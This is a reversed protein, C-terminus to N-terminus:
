ELLRAIEQEFEKLPASVGYRGVVQGASNVLFKEFNGALEGAPGGAPATSNWTALPRQAKLFTYFPAAQDGNVQMKDLVPFTGPRAGVKRYLFARECRSSHPAEGDGFQNSPVAILRLGAETHRRLLEQMADYSGAGAGASAVNVVLAAKARFRGLGIEQGYQFCTFNWFSVSSSKSSFGSALVADHAFDGTTGPGISRGECRCTEM